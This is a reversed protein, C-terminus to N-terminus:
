RALNSCNLHAVSWSNFLAPADDSAFLRPRTDGCRKRLEELLPVLADHSESEVVLWALPHGRNGKAVSVVAYLVHKYRTICATSDVVVNEPALEKWLAVMEPTQIGFSPYVGSELHASPVFLENTGSEM